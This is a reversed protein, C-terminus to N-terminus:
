KALRVVLEAYYGHEVLTLSAYLEACLDKQENFKALLVAKRLPHQENALEKSLRNGTDQATLLREVKRKDCVQYTASPSIVTKRRGM